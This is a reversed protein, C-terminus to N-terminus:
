PLDGLTTFPNEMGYPVARLPAFEKKLLFEWKSFPRLQLSDSSSGLAEAPSFNVEFMKDLYGWYQESMHFNKPCNKVSIKVVM